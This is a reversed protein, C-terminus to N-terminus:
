CVCAWTSKVSMSIVTGDDSPEDDDDWRDNDEVTRSHCQPMPGLDELSHFAVPVENGCGHGHGNHAGERCTESQCNQAVVFREGSLWLATASCSQEEKACALQRM